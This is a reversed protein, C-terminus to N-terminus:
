RLSVVYTVLQWRRAEPLRSWAPMGGTLNGNRILWELEGPTASQVGDSRLNTARNSGGGDSGHCAACNQRYLKAGAAVATADDRYPNVRTRMDLPARAIALLVGREDRAGHDGAAAPLALLAALVLM